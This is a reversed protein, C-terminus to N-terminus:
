VRSAGADAGVLAAPRDVPGRGGEGDLIEEGPRALPVAVPEEEVAGPLEPV